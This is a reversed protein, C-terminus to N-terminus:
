PMGETVLIKRAAKIVKGPEVKGQKVRGVWGAVESGKVRNGNGDGKELGSM